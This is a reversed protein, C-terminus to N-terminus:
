DPHPKFAKEAIAVRTFDIKVNVPRAQTRHMAMSVQQQEM